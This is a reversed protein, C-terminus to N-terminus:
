SEKRSSKSPELRGRLIDQESSFMQTTRMHFALVGVSWIDCPQGYRTKGDDDEMLVEPSRYGGSGMAATNTSKSNNKSSLKAIGFDSLKPVMEQIESSDRQLKKM